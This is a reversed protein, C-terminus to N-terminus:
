RPIYKYTSVAINVAHNATMWPEYDSKYTGEFEIEYAYPVYNTISVKDGLTIGPINTIQSPVAYAGKINSLNISTDEGGAQINWSSIYSGTYYPFNRQEMINNYTRVSLQEFIELAQEELYEKVKQVAGKEIEFKISM